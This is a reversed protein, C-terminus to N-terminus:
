PITCHRRGQCANSVYRFCDLSCGWRGQGLLPVITAQLDAIRRCLDAANQYRQRRQGLNEILSLLSPSVEEEEVM